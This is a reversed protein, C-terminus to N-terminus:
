DPDSQSLHRRLADQWAPMQVGAAALKANSLASYRPRPAKLMATELTMPAATFPRGLQRAAEAAIEAWTAAGSNVCHYLGPAAKREILARVARAIDATYTPSVTRDVFVPVPEGALIRRVITQLSGSRAGRTGPTGFLSEVRLVYAGPHQLAFWDGLLKSAAYTGRPAPVDDETLPRDITGGFVFDSGFHVLVAGSELAASALARVGLANSWLAEGPREEAGDVDNLAACNVVVAPEIAAISRSVAAADSIDLGRRDLPRVDHDVAMERSIAAALLGDAGTVLVRSV